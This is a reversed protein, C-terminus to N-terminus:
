QDLDDVIIVGEFGKARLTDAEEESDVIVPSNIIRKIAQKVSVLLKDIQKM